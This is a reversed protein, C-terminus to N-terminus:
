FNGSRFFVMAATMLVDDLQIKRLMVFKVIQRSTYMVLFTTALFWTAINVGTSESTSTILAARTFIEM